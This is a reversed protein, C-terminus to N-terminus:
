RYTVEPWRALALELADQLAEIEDDNSDGEAMRLARGVALRLEELLFGETLEGM